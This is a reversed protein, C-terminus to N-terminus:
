APTSTTSRSIPFGAKRCARSIRPRQHRLPRRGARQGDQRDLLNRRGGPMAEFSWGMAEAYFKKAKEVDRTMLENWYFKGHPTPMRRSRQETNTNQGRTAFSLHCADGLKDFAGIWGQEHGARSEEDFLREHTLTLVTGAGDPKLLVTVLLEHPEDPPAVKWAWTFVLKENAVVERYVGSM